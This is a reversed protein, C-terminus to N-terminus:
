LRVVDISFEIREIGVPVLSSDIHVLKFWSSGVQLLRVAGGAVVGEGHHELLHLRFREM